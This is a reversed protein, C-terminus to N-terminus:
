RSRRCRSPFISDPKCIKLAYQVSNEFDNDGFATINCRKIAVKRTRRDRSRGNFSKFFIQSRCRPVNRATRLQDKIKQHTSSSYQVCRRFSPNTELPSCSILLPRGLQFRIKKKRFNPNDSGPLWFSMAYAFQCFIPTGAVPM